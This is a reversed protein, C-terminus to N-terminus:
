RGARLRGQGHLRQPQQRPLHAHGRHRGPAGGEGGRRDRHRGRGVGGPHVGPRASQRTAVRFEDDFVQNYSLSDLQVWRTGLAALEAIEEIQLAVLDRVLDAPDPYAAASVEPRWTMAGMAASMMTVKFQGPAQTALYAAEVATLHDKRFVKSTAVTMVFDTEDEPPVEGDERRWTVAPTDIPSMGGTSELIGTMWNTRRVEGDTFVRLGASRQLAINEETARDEAARLEGEGTRGAQYEARAALLWPQRLLSGVHEAHIDAPEISAAM